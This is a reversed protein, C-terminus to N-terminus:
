KGLKIVIPENLKDIITKYFFKLDPYSDATFLSTTQQFNIKISLNDGARKVSRSLEISHDPTVLKVDKPLEEPNSGAPLEIVEEVTVNYPYGFNINTFRIDSTFPNKILGTFLNYNLLVFGGNDDMKKTWNFHQVLSATDDGQLDFTFDSIKLGEHIKEYNSVEPREKETKLSTLQSERAYASSYIDASGNLSGTNDLKAKLQVLQQYSNGSSVIESVNTTNKDILLSYTNLLPYPILTAPSYKQTVDLVLNKGNISVSAVTKNFRDLFIYNPDVKGFNREAVLLAKAAIGFSQLLNILLLNLEGSNGTKTDWVKKLNEVVFKGDYENWRFNEKVYNYVRNLKGIDTAEKGVLATLDEPVPLKKKIADGLSEVRLLNAALEKWTSNVKVESGSNSKIYSSLTFEVKQLYDKPADMYPEFRLGPIEDMEFYIIGDNPPTVIIEYDPKKSVLYSFNTNPLVNLRFCSRLVPLYSQFIWKDLGGYNKMISSYKYEFISGVKANPMAFRVTSFHEDEKDTFVSKRSLRSTVAGGSGPTYTVGDIDRIMEFGGKSYFPIKITANDLGRQDLIKIRVRRDTILQYNDDYYSFAYDFLIIADAEKDFTCETMTIEENSFVAFDPIRDQAFSNKSLLIVLVSLLIYRAM